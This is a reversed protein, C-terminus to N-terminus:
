YLFVIPVLGRLTGFTIPFLGQSDGAIPVERAEGKRSGTRYWHDMGIGRPLSQLSAAKRAETEWLIESTPVCRSLSGLKGPAFLRRERDCHRM